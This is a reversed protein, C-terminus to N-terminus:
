GSLKGLFIPGAPNPIPRGGAPEVTIGALGFSGLAEDSMVIVRGRGSADTNFIVSPLLADGKILWLQYTQDAPLAPLNSVSVLASHGQPAFFVTVRATEYEPRYAALASNRLEPQVLVSLEANAVATRQVADNTLSANASASTQAQALQSRTDTLLANLQTIQQDTSQMRGNAANLQALLENVRAESAAARTQTQAVSENLAAVDGRLSALQNGFVLALAAAVMAPAALAQLVRRWDFFHRASLQRDATPSAVRAMLKQKTAASPMVPLPALNLTATISKLEALQTRLAPSSALEREIASREAADLAGLAYLHLRTEMSLNDNM